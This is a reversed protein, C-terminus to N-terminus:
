QSDRLSQNFVPLCTAGTNTNRLLDVSAAPKGGLEDGVEGGLSM